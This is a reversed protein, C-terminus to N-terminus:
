RLGKPRNLAEQILSDLLQSFSLGDKAVLSPFMSSETFGPLTNIENIYVDGKTTLFMDVRSLGEADLAEFAKLAVELCHEQNKHDMAPNVILKVGNKSIYKTDYNYFDSKTTKIEGLTSTKAAYHDGLLACEIERGEIGQEIIVKPDMSAAKEIAPLLDQEKQVKSVGFSSGGRAPKVFVAQKWNNSFDQVKKLVEEALVFDKRLKMRGRRDEVLQIRLTVWPAVKLGAQQCILKTFHKDQGVASSLIGCGAYKIGFMEFLGQISGDEGYPGHLLPLVVDLNLGKHKAKFKVINSNFKHKGIANSVEPMAYKRRGRKNLLKPELQEPSDRVYLWTGEKTIGIPVVKYMERNLARLVGAATLCSISHESSVGGFVVGVRVLKNDEVSSNYCM